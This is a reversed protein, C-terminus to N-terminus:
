RGCHSGRGTRRPRPLADAFLRGLVLRARARAGVLGLLLVVLGFGSSRVVLVLRRASGLAVLGLSSPSSRARRGLSTVLGVLRRRASGLSSSGSQAVVLVALGLVLRLGSSCPSSGPSDVVLRVEFLVVGVPVVVLRRTRPRTRPCRRPRRTARRRRATRRAPRRPRSTRRARRGSRRRTRPAVTAPAIGVGFRGLHAVLVLEVLALDVLGHVLLGLAVRAVPLGDRRLSPGCRRM